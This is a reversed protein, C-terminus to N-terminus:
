SKKSHLISQTYYATISKELLVAHVQEDAVDFDDDFDIDGIFNKM